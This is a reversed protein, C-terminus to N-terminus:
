EKELLTHCLGTDNSCYSSNVHGPLGRHISKLIYCEPIVCQDIYLLLMSALKMERYMRVYKMWYQGILAVQLQRM